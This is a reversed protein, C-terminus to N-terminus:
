WGGGCGASYSGRFTHTPDHREGTPPQTMRRSVVSCSTPSPTPSSTATTATTIAGEVRMVSWTLQSLERGRRHPCGGTVPSELTDVGEDAARRAIRQVEGLDNTSMDIWTGGAPMGALAGSDGELCRSVNQPTPLCTILCYTDEAAARPSERWSAGATLLSAANEKRLDTVAVECGYSLLSHALLSALHGVGVFGVKSPVPDTRTM